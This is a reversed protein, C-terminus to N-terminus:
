SDESKGRAAYPPFVHFLIQSAAALIGALVSAVVITVRLNVGALHGILDL